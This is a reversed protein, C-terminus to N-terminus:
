TVVLFYFCMQAFSTGYLNIKMKRQSKFIHNEVQSGAWDLLGQDSFELTVICFCADFSM